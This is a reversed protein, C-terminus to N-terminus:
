SPIPPQSRLVRGMDSATVPEALYDVAGLHMAELYCM